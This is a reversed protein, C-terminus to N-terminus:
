RSNRKREWGGATGRESPRESEIEIERWEGSALKGTLAAAAAAAAAAAVVAAV